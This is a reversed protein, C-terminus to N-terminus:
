GPPGLPSGDPVFGDPVLQLVTRRAVDGDILAGDRDDMRHWAFWAVSEIIFRTATVVDPVPRLYGGAIRKDIYATLGSVQDGRLHQYYLESLEPVDQVSHEVLSLFRRNRHLLGYLEDIVSAMEGRVDSTESRALAETLIPFSDAPNWARLPALLQGPEPTPVPLALDEVPELGIALTMALQFLAEKSEVYGYVAGHSLGLEAAVDSIHARRYGKDIFVQCAAEAVDRVRESLLARAV